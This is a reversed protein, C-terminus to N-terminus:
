YGKVLEVASRKRRSTVIVPGSSKSDAHNALALAWFRDAHGRAESAAVDFRLNGAATTVKRISHLDERTEFDEPIYIARDEMETRLGYAMEEKSKNTFDVAEVRYKGFKEQADEAMQMGLGTSDICARRLNRHKLINFLAERQIRFPTKELVKVIRTYKAHGLKELVWIVSLDKRRGIDMGAFLDSKIEELPRFIDHAECSTIMNYTLFASAEDVPVCCYEQLWTNEDACSDRLEKLWDSKEKETTKRGLIKDVLGEKVALQIPTTHLSWNLTKNKVSRIFNYYMGNTGNHTSLIRLPFGWTICPRAAAWMREQDDHWAFEDLVVKGGKSRFAKPNSSLAHIKTGNAFAIVFAKIDRESDLVVQGLNKAAMQFMKAWMECYEIYERAASEDASSFWVAPVKKRQCDRVDEYAQDYTAGIRRAKERIKIPSGDKLWREQYPLFYKKIQRAENM